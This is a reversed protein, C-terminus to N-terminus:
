SASRPTTGSPRCCSAPLRWHPGLALSTALHEIADRSLERRIKPIQGRWLLPKLQVAFGLQPFGTNRLRKSENSDLTVHHVVKDLGLEGAMGPHGEIEMLGM